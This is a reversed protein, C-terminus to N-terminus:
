QVSRVVFHSVIDHMTGEHLCDQLPASYDLVEHIAETNGESKHIKLLLSVRKCCIDQLDELPVDLLPPVIYFIM